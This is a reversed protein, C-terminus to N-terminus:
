STRWTSFRREAYVLAHNIAMGITSVTIIGAYMDGIDFNQQAYNILYGLGAKAGALEAAILILISYAGAIRIGTFITPVAAPLVVKQFLRPPPLGMSRASKVLLPDVTRVGSITNLLIPWACGYVIISIKSTEGLGLVLIFVPMLALAATNRFLELLPGLITAVPRYWGILLGLPVGVLIALGLGSLSRIMSAQVHQALEGDAALAWWAELVESLPPLFTADVLGLRPVIEWVTALVVVAIGRQAVAGALILPRYRRRRSTTVAAPAPATPVEIPPHITYAPRPVVSTL